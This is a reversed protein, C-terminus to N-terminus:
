RGTLRYGIFFFHHTSLFDGFQQAIVTTPECMAPAYRQGIKIFHPEHHLIVGLILRERLRDPPIM